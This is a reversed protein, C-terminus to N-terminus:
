LTIDGEFEAPLTITMNRLTSSYVLLDKSFKVQDNINLNFFDDSAVNLMISINEPASDHLRTREVTIFWKKAYFQLIDCKLNITNHLDSIYIQKVDLHKTLAQDLESTNFEDANCFLTKVGCLRGEVEIGIKM